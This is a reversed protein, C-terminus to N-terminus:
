YGLTSHGTGLGHTALVEQLKTLVAQEVDEKVPDTEPVESVTELIKQEEETM